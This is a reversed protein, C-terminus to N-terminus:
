LGDHWLQRCFTEVPVIRVGEATRREAPEDAVVIMELHSVDDKLALLGKIDRRGVNTTSKVEIGVVRNPPIDVVFDVELQSLSRWYSLRADPAVYARWATLESWVFHELARGFGQEGSKVGTRGLLGNAVGVDFFFFKASAMAKRKDTARFAPLLSGILTDELVQFYDRVTRAPVQADNAIASFIVQEGNALAATNLFRAFNGISRVIAEAQIEERLYVGIYDALESKPDDSTLVAPLGGFAVLDRWARHASPDTLLEDSTIPCLHLLRARGGLLNTGGRRLKRASSGTLLFRRRKDQEILRHVSDLLEPLKQVEDIIVVPAAAANVRESLREPAASLQRFSEPELLDILLAEPFTQRLLTSKGTQRPGLLLASKSRLVSRLDLHRKFMNRNYWQKEHFGAIADRRMHMPQM